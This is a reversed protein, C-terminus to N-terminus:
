SFALSFWVIEDVPDYFMYFGDSGNARFAYTNLDGVFAFARGDPSLPRGEPVFDQLANLPADGGLDYIWPSPKGFTERLQGTAAFHAQADAFSAHVMAYFEEAESLTERRNIQQERLFLGKNKRACNITFFLPAALPEYRGSKTRRFGILNHRCYHNEYTGSSYEGLGGDFPEVPMVFHLLGTWRPDVISAEISVAPLYLERIDDTVMEFVHELKPFPRMWPEVTLVDGKTM